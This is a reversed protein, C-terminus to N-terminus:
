THYVECNSIILCAMKNNDSIPVRTFTYAREIFAVSIHCVSIFVCSLIYHEKCTKNSLRTVYISHMIEFRENGSVKHKLRIVFM